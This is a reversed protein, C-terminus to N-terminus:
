TYILDQTRLAIIYISNSPSGAILAQRRDRLFVSSTVFRKYENNFYKLKSLLQEMTNYKYRLNYLEHYSLRDPVLPICGLMFSELQAIGWTEQRACSVAFKSKLLLKYYEDKTKCVEKSKVFTFEPLYKKGKIALDDFYRPNKEDALRHPFVVINEKQEYDLQSVYEPIYLPFNVVEVRESFAIHRNRCLMDKHFHTAIYIRDVENLWSEELRRGWSAVGCQTLYDWPDYSGAHLMGAIKFKIGLTSRLYFLMELGPFWLDHFFFVDKDTIENRNFRLLIDELQRLKFVNTGIVDLFEGKNITSTIPEPYINIFPIGMKTYQEPFLVNWQASYREELSEIPVNYLM